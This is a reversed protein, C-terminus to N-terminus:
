LPKGKKKLASYAPPIQEIEGEFRCLAGRIEEDIFDPVTSRNLIRGEVDDTDTQIGLQITGEYEKELLLLSDFAKTAKGTCVLLVGRAMPDLTGGHGIKRCGTLHRLRRIVDFSTWGAPKNINLILGREFDGCTMGTNSFGAALPPSTEIQLSFSM